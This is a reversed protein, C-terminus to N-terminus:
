TAPLPARSSPPWATPVRTGCSRSTDTRTSTTRAWSRWRPSGTSRQRGVNATWPCRQTPSFSPLVNPPVLGCCSNTWKAGRRPEAAALQELIAIAEASRGEVLPREAAASDRDQGALQDIEAVGARVEASLEELGPYGPDVARVEELRDAALEWHAGNALATAAAFLRAAQDKSQASRLADGAEDRGPDLRLVDELLSVATSWEQDAM